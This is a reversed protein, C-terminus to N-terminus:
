ETLSKVRYISQPSVLLQASIVTFTSGSTTDESVRSIEAIARPGELTQVYVVDGVKVDKTQPPLKAVIEGYGAGELLAPKLTQQKQTRVSASAIALQTEEDSYDEDTSSGTDEDTSTVPELPPLEEETEGSIYFNNKFGADSFLRINVKTGVSEIVGVPLSSYSEFIIDGEVLSVSENPKGIFKDTTLYKPAVYFEEASLEEALVTAPTATIVFQKVLLRHIGYRFTPIAYIFLCVLIVVILVRIVTYKIEFLSRRGSFSSGIRRFRSRGLRGGSNFADSSLYRNSLKRGLLSKPKVGSLFNMKM